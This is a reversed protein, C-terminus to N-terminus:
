TKLGLHSVTQWWGVRYHLVGQLVNRRGGGRCLFWGARQWTAYPLVADGLVSRASRATTPTRPFFAPVPQRPGRAPHARWCGCHLSGNWRAPRVRADCRVAHIGGSNLIGATLSNRGVPLPMGFKLCSPLLFLCPICACYSLRRGTRGGAGAARGLFFAPM